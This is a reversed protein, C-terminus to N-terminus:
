PACSIGALWEPTYCEAFSWKQDSYRDDTSDTYVELRSQPTLRYYERIPDGEVTPYTIKLEASEGRTLARRLCVIERVAQKQLEEGQALSVEGCSSFETRAEWREKVPDDLMGCGAALLSTAAAAVIRARVSVVAVCRRRARSRGSTRALHAPRVRQLQDPVDNDAYM